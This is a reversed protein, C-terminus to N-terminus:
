AQAIPTHVTGPSPGLVGAVDLSGCGRPCPGRDRTQRTLLFSEYTPEAHGSPLSALPRWHALNGLRARGRPPGAPTPVTPGQSPGHPGCPEWRLCLAWHPSGGRPNQGAAAAESALTPPPPPHLDRERLWSLVSVAQGAGPGEPLLM